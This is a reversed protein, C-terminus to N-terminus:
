FGSRRGRGLSGILRRKRRFPAQGEDVPAATKAVFTKIKGPLAYPQLATQQAM